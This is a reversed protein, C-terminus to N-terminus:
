NKQLEDFEQEAEHYVEGHPMYKIMDKLEQIDSKLEEMSEKTKHMKKSKKNLLYKDIFKDMKEESTFIKHFYERRRYGSDCGVFLVFYINMKNRDISVKDIKDLNIYCKAGGDLVETYPM